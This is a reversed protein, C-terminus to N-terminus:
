PWTYIIFTGDRRTALAYREGAKLPAVTSLLDAAAKFTNLMARGVDPLAEPYGMTEPAMAAGIQALLEPSNIWPATSWNTAPDFNPLHVKTKKPTSPQAPSKGASKPAKTPAKSEAISGRAEPVACKATAEKPTKVVAKKPAKKPKESM